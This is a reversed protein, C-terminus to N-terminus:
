KVSVTEGGDRSGLGQYVDYDINETVFHVSGDAMLHQSGGTHRSRSAWVGRADGEGCGSCEHCNPFQWNPTVLTNVGTDDMMPSMWTFGTTSRHNGTGGLCTNGYTIMEARPPKVPTIGALSQARVYDGQELNFVGNDGDGHVIEAFAITNSTGDLIDGMTNSRRRHFVGANRTINAEWGFNPGTSAGYNNPGDGTPPLPDSPCLFVPVKTRRLDNNPAPPTDGSGRNWWFSLDMQEYLPAQDVYPLLM